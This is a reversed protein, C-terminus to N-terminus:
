SAIRSLRRLEWWPGLRKALRRDTAPLELAFRYSSGPGYTRCPDRRCPTMSLRRVHGGRRDFFVITLPVLTNKMWFSGTTDDHFVFLMGDKPAKRRGMLGRGRSGSTLALEPQFPAGDLKLRAATPDADSAAATLAAALLATLVLGVAPKRLRAFTVVLRYTL